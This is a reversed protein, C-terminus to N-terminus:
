APEFASIIFPELRFRGALGQDKRTIDRASKVLSALQQSTTLPPTLQRAKQPM